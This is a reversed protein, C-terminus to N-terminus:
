LLSHSFHTCAFPIKVVEGTEVETSGSSCGLKGGWSGGKGVGSFLVVFTELVTYFNISM